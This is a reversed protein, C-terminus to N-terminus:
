SYSISYGDEWLVSGHYDDDDEHVSSPPVGRQNLDGTPRVVSTVSDSDIIVARATSKSGFHVASNNIQGNSSSAQVKAEYYCELHEIKRIVDGDPGALQVEASPEAM